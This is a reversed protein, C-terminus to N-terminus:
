SSGGASAADEILLRRLGETANRLAARDVPRGTLRAGGALSGIRRCVLQLEAEMEAPTRARHSTRESAIRAVHPATM